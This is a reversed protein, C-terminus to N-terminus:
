KLCKLFKYIKSFLNYRFFNKQKFYFIKDSCFNTRYIDVNYKFYNIIHNLDQWSNHHVPNNKDPNPINLLDGEKNYDDFFYNPNVFDKKVKIAYPSYDSFTPILNSNEEQYNLEIGYLYITKFYLDLAWAVTGAGTTIHTLKSITSSNDKLLLDFNYVAKFNSKGIEKILNDRLLFRKIGLKKHNEIMHNIKEKHSLGVVLDLCSYNKPYTSIKEWYRYAANMGFTEFKDILSFDFFKMSPGNGLIIAVKKFM